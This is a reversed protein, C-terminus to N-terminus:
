RHTADALVVAVAVFVAYISSTRGHDLVPPERPCSNRRNNSRNRRMIVTLPWWSPSSKRRGPVKEPVGVDGADPAAGRSGAGGGVIADVGDGSGSGGDGDGDVGVGDAAPAAAGAIAM